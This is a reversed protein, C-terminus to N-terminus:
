SAAAKAKRATAPKRRATSRKRVPTPEPEDPLIEAGWLKILEPGSLIPVPQSQPEALVRNAWAIVQRALRALSEGPKHSAEALWDNIRHVAKGLRYGAEWTFQAMVVAYAIIRVALYATTKLASGIQESSPITFHTANAM